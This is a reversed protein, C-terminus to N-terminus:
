GGGALRGGDIPVTAGTLFSAEDSLLWAVARAIEDAQGLRGLPVHAAIERRTDDDLGAIRGSLIPGPAIANIRINRDAYDLAASKTLGVIAHKATAYGAIGRVGRLGATSSMNVIAGGGAELMAPIEHRMALFVGRVNAALVREFDDVTLEALPLPQHVQGANNFAIDLRGYTSLTQDVLARVSGEDTVDTPIPSAKGGEAHLERALKELVSESRSALVVAVGAKALARSSAAGIESSAGTVIAVSTM